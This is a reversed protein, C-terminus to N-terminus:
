EYTALTYSATYIPEEIKDYVFLCTVYLILDSIGTVIDLGIM